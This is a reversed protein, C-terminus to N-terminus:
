QLFREDCQRVRGGGEACVTCVCKNAISLETENTSIGGHFPKAKAKSYGTAIYIINISGHHLSKSNLQHISIYQPRCRLLISNIFNHASSSSFYSLFLCGVFYNVTHCGTIKQSEALDPYYLKFPIPFAFHESKPVPRWSPNQFILAQKLSM